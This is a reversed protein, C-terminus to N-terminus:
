FGKGFLWKTEMLEGTINSDKGKSFSSETLYQTQLKKGEPIEVKLQERLNINM